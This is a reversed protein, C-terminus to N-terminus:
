TAPPAPSSRVWRTFTLADQGTMATVRCTVGFAEVTEVPKHNLIADRISM